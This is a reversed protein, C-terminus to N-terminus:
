NKHKPFDEFDKHYLSKQLYLTFQMAHTKLVAENHDSRMRKAFIRRLRFIGGHIIYLKRSNKINLLVDYM